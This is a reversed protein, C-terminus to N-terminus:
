MDDQSNTSYFMDHLAIIVRAGHSVGLPKGSRTVEDEMLSIERSGTQIFKDKMAQPHQNDFM